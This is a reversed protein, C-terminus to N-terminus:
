RGGTFLRAAIFIQHGSTFRVRVGERTWAADRIVPRPGSDPDLKRFHGYGFGPDRGAYLRHSKVRGFVLSRESVVGVYHTSGDDYWVTAPQTNRDFRDTRALSRDLVTVVGGSMIVVTFAVILSIKFPKNV